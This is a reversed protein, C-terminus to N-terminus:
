KDRGAFVQAEYPGLTKGTQGKGYKLEQVIEFEIGDVAPLEFAQEDATFNLAFFLAKGHKSRKLYLMTEDNELDLIEIDGYVTVEPHQKRFTILRRYHELPSEAAGEQAAVNIEKYSDMVRMWLNPSTSFGAQPGDDWQMPTRAHDRAYLTVGKRGQALLEPDNEAEAAHKIEEWMNVTLVDKYEKEIEWSEPCNIMGIEQGQYIIPTGSLSLLYTALLKASNVRHAPSANAFRPVSRGQDHNELYTAAWAENKPDTLEQARQTIKKFQSLKWEQPLFQFRRSGHDISALDFQIIMDLQAAEKSVYKLIDEIEFTEGCEGITMADYRGWTEKRLERLFEHIKPGNCLLKWAAQYPDVIPADPFDLHKSYLNATDIRFGDCGKDLWFRCVEGYIAERVESNEWNLDPQEVAFYHLYYEQSPEDWEWVSGGFAAKWNCPPHRVGDIYRAQRWMYWDRKPNDKSSRSEKFWPHLDSTHNVVLDFLVKMGREHCGAILEEVDSVKGYPEHVDQYDSIDYGLDIQPSKFFPSVWVVDVGLKKIYDLKSIIGQIDGYDGQGKSDKFTRPYIQYVVAEKWWRKDHVTM